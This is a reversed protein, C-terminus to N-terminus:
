VTQNMLLHISLYVSLSVELVQGISEMADSLQKAVHDRTQDAHDEVSRIIDFQKGELRAM